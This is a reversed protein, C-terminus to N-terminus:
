LAHSRSVRIEGRKFGGHGDDFRFESKQWGDGLLPPVRMGERFGSSVVAGVM